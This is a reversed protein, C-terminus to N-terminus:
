KSNLCRTSSAFFSSGYPLNSKTIIGPLSGDIRCSNPTDILLSHLLICSTFPCQFNSQFLSFFEWVFTIRGDRTRTSIYLHIYFFNSNWLLRELKLCKLFNPIKLAKSLSVPTLYFSLSEESVLLMVINFRISESM